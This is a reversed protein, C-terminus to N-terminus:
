TWHHTGRCAGKMVFVDIITDGDNTFKDIPLPLAKRRAALTTACFDDTSTVVYFGDTDDFNLGKLVITKGILDVQKCGTIGLQDYVKYWSFGDIPSLYIVSKEEDGWFYTFQPSNDSKACNDNAIWGYNAFLTRRQVADPLPYTTFHQDVTDGISAQDFQNDDENEDEYEDNVIQHAHWTDDYEDFDDVEFQGNVDDDDYYYYDNAPFPFDSDQAAPVEGDLIPQRCIPCKNSSAHRSEM